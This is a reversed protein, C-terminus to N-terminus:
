EEEDDEATDSSEDPDKELRAALRRELDQAETLFQETPVPQALRWSPPYFQSLYLQDSLRRNKLWQSGLTAPVGVLLVLLVGVLIGRRSQPAAVVLHRYLGWAAFVVLSLYAFRGLMEWSFAFALVQMVTEVVTAVVLAACAIRVHRWFQAQHTIVRSALAWLGAWLFLIGLGSLLFQPLAQWSGDLGAGRSWLQVVMLALLLMVAVVSLLGNSWAARPLLQEEALAGGAMRLRLQLRGLGLPQSVAWDFGTGRPHQQRGQQVGNRTELVQVRVRDPGAAELRLHHPAVHPDDLVLDADLARGVTVPWQRIPLRATVHGHREVAELLALVPLASSPQQSAVQDAPLAQPLQDPVMSVPIGEHQAGEPPPAASM